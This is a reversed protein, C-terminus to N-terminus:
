GLTPQYVDHIRLLGLCQGTKEDVVPLVSIQSARKEMVAAAEGLTAHPTIAIPNRTMVDGAHLGRIDEHNRLTRRIDGDTIIGILTKDEGVVCAAGLPHETMAIVVEHVTDGESVWAVAEDAHMTEDVRLLLHRGLQGAPHFRAFDEQKFGRAIMLASALADGMAMAAVASATPVIGLPDAECEVSADLVVDAGKAVPGDLRGVLAILPSRLERLTPMLRVLERTTGSNSILLTPDGPQYLGFDGHMAEAAHLFVAPTGTSCLTAAIKQGVLGSKGVGCVIVKGPHALILRTAAELSGDLREAMATLALAECNIAKRAVATLDMSSTANSM